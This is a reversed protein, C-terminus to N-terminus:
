CLELGKEEVEQEEKVFELGLKKAVFKRNDESLELADFCVNTNEALNDSLIGKSAERLKPLLYTDLLEPTWTDGTLENEQTLALFQELDFSGFFGTSEKICAEIKEIVEPDNNPNSKVQKIDGFHTDISERVISGMTVDKEHAEAKLKKHQNTTLFILVKKEKAPLTDIDEVTIKPLSRKQGDLCQLRPKPQIPERIPNQDTEGIDNLEEVEEEKKPLRTLTKKSM